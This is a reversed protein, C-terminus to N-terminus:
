PTFSVIHAKWVQLKLIDLFTSVGFLFSVTLLYMGILTIPFNIYFTIEMTSLIYARYLYRPEHYNVPRAINDAYHATHIIGNCAYLAFLLTIINYRKRASWLSWFATAERYKILLGFLLTIIIFVMRIPPFDDSGERIVIYKGYTSLGYIAM